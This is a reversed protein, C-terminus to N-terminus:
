RTELKQLLPAAEKPGALAVVMHGFTRGVVRMVDERTVKKLLAQFKEAGDYGVGYLESLAIGQAVDNVTQAYYPEAVLAMARGRELEEDTFAGERLRRIEKLIIGYVEELYKLETQTVIYVCGEELGVFNSLHVYYVYSRDGGRLADQLWGSPLGIGSTFADVITLAARDELNTYRTGPFGIALAAQAKQNEKFAFRDEPLGTKAWAPPKVPVVEFTGEGRFGAFANRLLDVTREVDVDGAVALVMGEPRLTQKAFALVDERTLAAVSETSGFPSNAYPHDGFMERRLFRTVEQVWNADQRASYFSLIRHEKAFEEAPFTANELVDAVLPVAVPLDQEGRALTMSLGFTNNGSQSGIQAGISDTLGAIDEASRTKTGRLLLRSTLFSVGNKGEPELRLGGLTFVEIGV